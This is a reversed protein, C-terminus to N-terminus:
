KPPSPRRKKEPPKPCSALPALRESMIAYKDAKPLPSIAHTSRNITNVQLMRTYLPCPISVSSFPIMFLNKVVSMLVGRLFFSIPHFEKKWLSKLRCFIKGMIPINGAARRRVPQPSLVGLGSPKGSRTEQTMVIMRSPLEGQRPSPKGSELPRHELPVIISDSYAFGFRLLTLEGSRVVTIEGCHSDPVVLNCAFIQLCM